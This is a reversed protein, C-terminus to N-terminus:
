NLDVRDVDSQPRVLQPLVLPDFEPWDGGLIQGQGLEIDRAGLAHLLAIVHRESAEDPVSVAIMMGARRVGGSAQGADDDMQSLSGVLNGLHAGVLAGAVLGAPGVLPMAVAGIAMGITGGGVVGGAELGGASDQAGRSKDHDGGIPYRDHQGPPNVFFSAIREADVGAEQLAARASDVEAQQDFRGAIIKSM